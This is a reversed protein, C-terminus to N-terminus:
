DGGKRPKHSIFLLYQSLSALSPPFIALGRDVRGVLGVWINLSNGVLGTAKCLTDFQERTYERLHITDPGLYYPYSVPKGFLRLLRNSLRVRNPTGLLVFGGKKCVRFAERVFQEDALIHEIVDFSVVADFSEDWFPLATADALFFNFKRKRELSVNDVIDIGTVQGVDYFLRTRDGSGCGLELIRKGVLAHNVFDVVVKDRADDFRCIFM